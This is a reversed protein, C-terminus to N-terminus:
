LLKVLVTIACESGISHHDDVQAMGSMLLVDIFDSSDEVIADEDDGGFLSLVSHYESHFHSAEPYFVLGDVLETARM